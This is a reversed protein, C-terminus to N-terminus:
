TSIVRPTGPQPLLQKLTQVGYFIGPNSAGVISAEHQGLILIYGESEMAPEFALGQKALLAKAAASDTRLLTVRYSPTVAGTRTQEGPDTKAMQAIADELDRAAFEDAENHVPVSVLIREPLDVAAGFHAQRPAPVLHIQLQPTAQPYAPQSRVVASLTLAACILFNRFRPM